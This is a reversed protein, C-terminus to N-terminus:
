KRQDFVNRPTVGTDFDLAPKSDGYLTECLRDTLYACIDQLVEIRESLPLDSLRRREAEKKTAMLLAKTSIYNKLSYSFLM